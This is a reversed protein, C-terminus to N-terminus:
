EEFNSEASDPLSDNWESSVVSPSMSLRITATYLKRIKFDIFRLTMGYEVNSTPREINSTRTLRLYMASLIYLRHPKVFWIRGTRTRGRVSITARVRIQPTRLWHPGTVHWLSPALCRYEPLHWTEAEMTRWGGFTPSADTPAYVARKTEPLATVRSLGHPHKTVDGPSFPASYQGVLDWKTGGM